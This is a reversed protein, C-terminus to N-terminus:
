DLPLWKENVNHRKTLHRKKQQEILEEDTPLKKSEQLSKKYVKIKELYKRALDLENESLVEANEILVNFDGKSVGINQYVKPDLEKLGKLEVKLALVLEKGKLNDLPTKGQALDAERLLNKALLNQMGAQLIAEVKTYNTRAM